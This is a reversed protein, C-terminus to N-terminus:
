IFFMAVLVIALLQGISASMYTLDGAYSQYPAGIFTAASIATAVVSLAVAWAPMRRGGLFYDESGGKRRSAALGIVVLLVFYGGLVAWDLMSFAAPAPAPPDTPM